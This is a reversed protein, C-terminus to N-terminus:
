EIAPVAFAQEIVDLQQCAEVAAPSPLEDLELIMMAMEGRHQRSLRMFAINLGEEALISTVRMMVGPQDRHITILAPLEGTLEVSFRDIGTIRISGGGVSSGQVKVTRGDAGTLHIIATNPPVDPIDVKQVVLELGMSPALCLADRIRVDDPAFGLIGAALAKDTGHGRYTQAFSGTLQLGARVPEEGLIARAMLGLRVAGATHSSSPGIMVPGVIDFVGRMKKDMREHFLSPEDIRVATGEWYSSVVM